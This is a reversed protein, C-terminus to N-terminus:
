MQFSDLGLLRLEVNSFFAEIFFRFIKRIEKLAHFGKDRFSERQLGANEFFTIVAQIIQFCNLYIFLAETRQKLFAFSSKSVKLGGMKKNKLGTPM